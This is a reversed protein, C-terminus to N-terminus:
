DNNNTDTAISEAPYTRYFNAEVIREAEKDRLYGRM